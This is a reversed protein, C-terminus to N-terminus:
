PRHVPQRFVRATKVTSEGAEADLMGFDALAMFAASASCRAGHAGTLVLQYQEAQGAADIVSSVAVLGSEEHIWAQAPGHEDTTARVWGDQGPCKPEIASSTLDPRKDKAAQERNADIRGLRWRSEGAIETVENVPIVAHATGVGVAEHRV